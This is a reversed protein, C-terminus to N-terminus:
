YQWNFFLEISIRFTSYTSVLLTAPPLQAWRSYWVRFSLSILLFLILSFITCSFSNDNNNVEFYTSYYLHCFLYVFIFHLSLNIFLNVFSCIFLHILLYIFAYIYLCIISPFFFFFPLIVSRWINWKINRLYHFLLFYQSMIYISVYQVVYYSIYWLMASHLM